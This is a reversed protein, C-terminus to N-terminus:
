SAREDIDEPNLMEEIVFRVSNAGADEEPSSHGDYIEPFRALIDELARRYEPHMKPDATM